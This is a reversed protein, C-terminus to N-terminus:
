QCFRAGGCREVMRIDDGNIVQATVPVVREDAHLEDFSLGIM